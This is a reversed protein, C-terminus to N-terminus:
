HNAIIKAVKEKQICEVDYRLMSTANYFNEINKYVHPHKGITAQQGNLKLSSIKGDVFRAKLHDKNTTYVVDEIYQKQVFSGRLSINFICNGARFM